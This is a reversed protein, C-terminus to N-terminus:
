KAYFWQEGAFNQAIAFGKDDFNRLKANIVVPQIVDQTLVFFWLNKGMDAKINDAQKRAADLNLSRISDVLTYCNKVDAPPEIGQKGNSTWWQFWLPAWYNQGWESRFWMVPGPVFIITAKLENATTRTTWLAQDIQKVTVDLGLQKWYEMVLEAVQQFDAMIMGHEIPISFKKGDPGVRFGDAGKKMGMEDLLRNAETLDQKTGEMEAPKAFGYYVTDAIEKKDIALNLAKRFRLDQVVQQWVPDKYNFNLFVNAATRHLKTYLMTKFNGKVENEKYLPVRSMLAWEYSHDVEGAIIKMNIMELDPVFSSQLRDIYPLQNGATDVKFYYPNREFQIIDGNKVQIWPTLMPFGIAEANAVETNIVDKYNFLNVWEGPQFKAEKIKQELVDAAAYKKHFQELFHKPKLLDTYGHWGEIAMSVLFGGYTADFSITFTNQDIVQFKLPTGSNKGASKLWAPPGAPSLEKNFLVDEVAFQVDEMTVPHGDSWKLGERLHFTFTKQDASAEYAKLVNPTIQTGLLGPTNLLPENNMIFIVNDISVTNRVTRLVGGYTGIKYDLLEPPMENTIKPENPLRDKVAPLGKGSLYPSEKYGNQAPEAKNSPKNSKENPAKDTSQHACGSVIAAFLFLISIILLLIRKM